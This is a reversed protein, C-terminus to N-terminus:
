NTPVEVKYPEGLKSLRVDITLILEINGSLGTLAALASGDAEVAAELKFGRLTGDVGYYNTASLLVKKFAKALNSLFNGTEPMNPVDMPLGPISPMALSEFFPKLDLSAKIARTKVGDITPGDTATYQAGLMEMGASESFGLVDSLNLGLELNFESEELFESVSQVEWEDDGPSKTYIQGDVIRIEIEGAQADDGTLSADMIVRLAIKELVEAIDDSGADVKSLDAGGSGKVSLTFGSTGLGKAAAEVAFDMAFSKLKDVNKSAAAVLACDEASLTSPCDQALV